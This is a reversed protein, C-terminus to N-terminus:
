NREAVDFIGNWKTVYSKFSPYDDPINATTCYKLVQTIREKLKNSHLIKTIPQLQSVVTHFGVSLAVVIPWPQM